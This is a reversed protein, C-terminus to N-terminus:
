CSSNHKKKNKDNNHKNYKLMFIYKNLELTKLFENM